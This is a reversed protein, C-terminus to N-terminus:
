CMFAGIQVYINVDDAVQAINKKVKRLKLFM